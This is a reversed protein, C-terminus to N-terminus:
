NPRGSPLALLHSKTWNSEKTARKRGIIGRLRCHQVRVCTVYIRALVALTLLGTKKFLPWRQEVLSWAEWAKGQYLLANVTSIFHHFHLSIFQNTPINKILAEANTLAQGPCDDALTLFVPYSSAFVAARYHDGRRDADDLLEPIKQRLESIEGLLVQSALEFGLTVTLDWHSGRSASQPETIKEQYQIVTKRALDRCSRWNGRVFEISTRCM